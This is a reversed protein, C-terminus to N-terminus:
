KKTRSKNKKTDNSKKNVSTHNKYNQTPNEENVQGNQDHGDNYNNEQPMHSEDFNSFDIMLPRDNSTEEWVNERLMQELKLEMSNAFSVIGEDFLQCAEEYDIVFGHSSYGTILHNILDHNQNLRSGYHFAIAMARNVEGLKIPDIQGSIPSIVGVAIATAIEAATKTTITYGSNRKLNMFSEMFSNFAQNNLSQLSQLFSLGSTNSLEDDKVLQIDLPGLEGFDGMIIHNAGLAILTGTSKCNGFLCLYFDTYNRRLFKVLRYGADPNGGNTTLILYCNPKRDGQKQYRLINIFHDVHKPYTSGNYLFVDAYYQESISNITELIAPDM